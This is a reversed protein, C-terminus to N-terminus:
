LLLLVTHDSVRFCLYLDSFGGFSNCYCLCIMFIRWVVVVVIVVVVVAIVLIRLVGLDSCFLRLFFLLCKGYGAEGLPMNDDPAVQRNNSGVAVTEVNAAIKEKSQLPTSSGKKAKSSKGRGILRM